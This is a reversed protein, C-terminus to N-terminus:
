ELKTPRGRRKKAVHVAEDDHMPETEAWEDARRAYMCVYMTLITKMNLKYTNRVCVCM